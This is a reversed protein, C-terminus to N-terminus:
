GLPHKWPGRYGSGLWRKTADLWITAASANTTRPVNWDRPPRYRRWPSSESDRIWVGFGEPPREGSSRPADPVPSGNSEDRDDDGTM